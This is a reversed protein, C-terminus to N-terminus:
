PRSSTEAGNDEKDRLNSPVVSRMESGRVGRDDMQHLRLIEAAVALFKINEVRKRPFHELSLVTKCPFLATIPWLLPKLDACHVEAGM